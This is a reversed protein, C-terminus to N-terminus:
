KSVLDAWEIWLLRKSKALQTCQWPACLGMDFNPFLPLELLRVEGVLLEEVLRRLREDDEGAVDRVALFTGHSYSCTLGAVRTRRSAPRSTLALLSNLEKKVSLCRSTKDSTCTSTLLGLPLYTLVM